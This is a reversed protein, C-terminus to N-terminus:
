FLDEEKDSTFMNDLKASIFGLAFCIIVGVILAFPTVEM